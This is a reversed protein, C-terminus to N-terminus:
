TAAAHLKFIFNNKVFNILFWKLQLLDDEYAIQDEDYMMRVCTKM